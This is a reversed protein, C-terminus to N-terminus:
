IKQIDKYVTNEVELEPNSRDLLFKYVINRNKAYTARIAQRNEINRDASQIGVIIQFDSFKSDPKTNSQRNKYVKPINVQKGRIKGTLMTRSESAIDLHSIVKIVDETNTRSKLDGTNKQRYLVKDTTDMNVSYVSFNLYQKYTEPNFQKPFLYEAPSYVIVDNWSQTKANEPIISSIINKSNIVPFNFNEERMVNKDPDMSNEGEFENLDSFVSEKVRYKSLIEEITKRRLIYFSDDIKDNVTYGSVDSEEINNEQAVKKLLNDQNLYVASYDYNSLNPVGIFVFLKVNAYAQYVWELTALTLSHVSSSNNEQVTILKYHM